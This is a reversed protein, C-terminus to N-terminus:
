KRGKEDKSEGHFPHTGQTVKKDQRWLFAIKGRRQEGSKLLKKTTLRCLCVGSVVFFSYRHFIESFFTM